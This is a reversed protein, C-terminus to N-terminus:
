SREVGRARLAKRLALRGRRLHTKVTNVSIGRIAGIERYGLGDGYHLTLVIRAEVPVTVLAAQLLRGREMIEVEQHASDEVSDDWEELPVQPRRRRLEDVCANILIRYFWTSLRWRSNYDARAEYLRLFAQQVADEADQRRGLMRLAVAFARRQYRDVLIAFADREGTQVRYLLTEDSQRGEPM